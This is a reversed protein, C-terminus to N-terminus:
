AAEAANLAAVIHKLWKQETCRAVPLLNTSERDYVYFPARQDRGAYFRPPKRGPKSDNM